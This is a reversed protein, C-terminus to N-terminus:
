FYMKALIALPPTGLGLTATGLYLTECYLTEVGVRRTLSPNARGERVSRTPAAASERVVIYIADPLPENKQAASVATNEFTNAVIFFVERSRRGDSM